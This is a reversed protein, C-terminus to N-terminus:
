ASSIKMAAALIRALLIYNVDFGATTLSIADGIGSHKIMAGYAGGASTILIITGAIELPKAISEWLDKSNLKQTKRWLYLALVAGTGMAINKNGQSAIWDPVNDTISAVISALSIMLLPVIVPLISLILSPPNQVSTVHKDAM